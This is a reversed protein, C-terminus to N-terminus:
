KIAACGMAGSSSHGATILYYRLDNPATGQIQVRLGPSDEPRIEHWEWDVILGWIHCRWRDGTDFEITWRHVAGMVPHYVKQASIEGVSVRDWQQKERAVVVIADTRQGSLSKHGLSVNLLDGSSRNEVKVRFAPRSSCIIDRSSTHGATTLYVKLEQPATGQVLMRMGYIDEEKIDHIGEDTECKMDSTSFSLHWADRHDINAVTVEQPKSTERVGIKDWELRQFSGQSLLWSYRSNFVRVALLDVNSHNEITVELTTNNTTPRPETPQCSVAAIALAIIPVPKMKICSPHQLRLLSQVRQGLVVDGQHRVAVQHESKYRTPCSLWLAM